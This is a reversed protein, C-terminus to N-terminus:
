LGPLKMQSDKVQARVVRNHARVMFRHAEPHDSAHVMYYMIRNSGDSEYIPYHAARKYGLEDEFRKRVLEAVDFHGMTKLKRWDSSGWWGNMKQVNTIGSMSRHLWGIGLFYLLEIKFGGKKYAALKEVTNWHCEFTRQDLLCFVAEKPPIGRALVDDVTVNFDGPFIEIKRKVVRDNKDRIVPQEQKLRELAKVSERKLECLYFRTLWKPESTLVQAASWADLHNPDQPGAFGDIYTGHRTVQVFLKLYEQIFTAKRHSWIPYKVRGYKHLDDREPAPLDPFLQSIIQDATQRKTAKQAM